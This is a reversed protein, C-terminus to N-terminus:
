DHTVHYVQITEESENLTDSELKVVDPKWYETDDPLEVWSMGQYYNQDWAPNISDPMVPQIDPDSVALVIPNKISSDWGGDMAYDEATEIDNFFYVGYGLDGYGGMFGNAMIDDVSSRETVHYKYDLTEHINPLLTPKSVRRVGNIDFIGADYALRKMFQYPVDLNSLRLITDIPNQDGQDKLKKIAALALVANPSKKWLKYILPRAASKMLVKVIPMLTDKNDAFFSENVSATLQQTRDLENTSSGDRYIGTVTVDAGRYLRMEEEDEGYTLATILTESWNIDHQDVLGVVIMIVHNPKQTGWYATASEQRYSWYEGLPISKYQGSSVWDEPVSLARYVVIKTGKTTMASRIRHLIDKADARLRPRVWEIFDAPDNDEDDSFEDFYWHQTIDGYNIVQDVVDDLDVVDNSETIDNTNDHKVHVIDNRDVIIHNNSVAGDFFEISDKWDRPKSYWEDYLDPDVDEYADALQDNPQLDLETAPKKFILDGYAQATNLTGWYSPADIGNALIDDLNDIFTGHYVMYPRDNSETNENVTANVVRDFPIPGDTVVYLKDGWKLEGVMGVIINLNLL